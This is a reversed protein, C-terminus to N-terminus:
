LYVWSVVESQTVAM